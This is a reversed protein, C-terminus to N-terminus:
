AERGGERQLRSLMAFPSTESESLVGAAKLAADAAASRPYPDIALGVTDVIVDGLDIAAGDFFMTDLEDARLEVEEEERDGAPAPVFRIAFPEDIASTVPDGSVVCSQQLHARVRGSCDITAGDRRFVCHAELRDVAALDLRRAVAAREAEDAIIDNRQGDRIRDVALRRAFDSM